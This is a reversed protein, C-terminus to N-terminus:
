TEVMYPDGMSLGTLSERLQTLQTNDQVEHVLTPKLENVFEKM